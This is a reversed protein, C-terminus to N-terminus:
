GSPCVGQRAGWSQGAPATKKLLGVLAQQYHVRLKKAVAAGLGAEFAARDSANPEAVFWASIEQNSPVSDNVLATEGRAVRLENVLLRVFEPADQQERHIRDLYGPMQLLAQMLTEQGLSVDKVSKGMLGQALEEMEAVIHTPGVLQVMKLTGHAQHIATLCARMSGADDPSVAVAELANQAQEFLQFIEGKIWELAVYDQTTSM